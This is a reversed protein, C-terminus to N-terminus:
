KGTGFQLMVLYGGSSGGDKRRVKGNTKLPFQESLDSHRQKRREYERQFWKWKTQEKGNFSCRDLVELM